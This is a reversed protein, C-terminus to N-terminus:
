SVVKDDVKTQKKPSVHVSWYRRVYPLDIM